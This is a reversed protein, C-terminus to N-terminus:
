PRRSNAALEELSDRRVLLQARINNLAVTAAATSLSFIRKNGNVSNEFSLSFLSDSDHARSIAFEVDALLKLTTALDDLTEARDYHYKMDKALEDADGEFKIPENM